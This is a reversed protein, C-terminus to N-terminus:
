RLAELSAKKLEVPSVTATGAKIVVLGAACNAIRAADPYTAGALLGLTFAAIVTDGAGTVDAVEDKGFPPIHLAPRGREILTMGRAGRTVLVAGAGSRRLLKRGAEALARDTAPTPIGLAMELEEQNPTSASAGQFRDVRERSDVTVPCVRSGNRSLASAAIEPTAAGYGYDAIMLGDARWAASKIRRRLSGQVRSPLGGHPAGKEIRVIQQRRTHVGGALIRSKSPTSYGAVSVIGSVDIKRRRMWGTLFRGGADRGVVGVPLVKAGLAHLNAIANGGAGPALVTRRHELVLVPAERSVRSIDGHVFEDTVLDALVAVRLGRFRDVVRSLSATQGAQGRKV